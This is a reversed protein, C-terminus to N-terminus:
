GMFIPPFAPTEGGNIMITNANISSSSFLAVVPLAAATLRTKEDQKEKKFM